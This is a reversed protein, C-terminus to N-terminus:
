GNARDYEQARLARAVGDRCEVVLRQLAPPHDGTALWQDTAELTSVSTLLSPYFGLVITQAVENTREAWVRDIVAFYQDRYPVLLERQDRHAFGAIAAEQVANPLNAHEVVQRWVEAKAAATPRLARATTARRHGTATDDAALEADIDREDAIGAAVLRSLLLWRLDTDIVLGSVPHAAQASDELLERLFLLHGGVAVGALARMLQLQTDSGAAANHLLEQLRDAFAATLDARRAPDAYMDIAVKAQRLNALVVSSGPEEAIGRLVLEVYSHAALEGDRCMDWTASWCLSRALSGDVQGIHSLLTSLSRDDFRIKTYALDDDNLLLLDPVRDGLLEPVPTREGVVDIEVRRRRILRSGDHDYLGIALRHSRMTPWLEPAHQIVQFSQYSDDDVITETTLTNLGATELWEKSWSGLDRGSTAALEVLLDALTTNSWEHRRFYRRVGDVFRDFGVWAVLQKLVAAGKAYTIGDFNVEVDELDRIHAAIPHTSPLQDQRYAWTKETNAFTTWGARFSTGETLALVSAYTAFSENLWLDDWWSMTVLDGFWMHALEHLLTIARQEVFAEPVKSRFLYDELITVAGANEMAGANFEPVFLQDYKSFPFPYDFLKEFYRFGAKTIDFVAASDLHASLTRRCYVALPIAGADGPYTDHIVHYPGAIIATVYTPLRPTPAFRWVAKGNGAAEPESSQQNSVVRWHDPATVTFQFTAKMDPQDFCAFVRRADAVQFQSYLYVENDVPDVFRHLGEGTNMYSCSAEVRLEHDAGRQEAGPQGAAPQQIDIRTGDFVVDPDLAAGNLAISHVQPAILDVFTSPSSNRYRFRITTVSRFTQHDTATLDLEIHYSTVDLASARGRAQTRTLNSGPV